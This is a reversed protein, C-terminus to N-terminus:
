SPGLARAHAAMKRADMILQNIMTHLAEPPGPSQFILFDPYFYSRPHGTEGKSFHEELYKGTTIWGSRGDIEPAWCLVDHFHMFRGIPDSEIISIVNKLLHDVDHSGKGNRALKKIEDLSLGLSRLMSKAVLEAAQLSLGISIKLDVTTKGAAIAKDLAIKALDNLCQAHELYDEPTPDSPTSANM